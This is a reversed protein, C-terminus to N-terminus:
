PGQEENEAALVSWNLLVGATMLIYRVFVFVFLVGLDFRGVDVFCALGSKHFLKWDHLTWSSDLYNSKLRMINYQVIESLTVVIQLNKTMGLLFKDLMFQMAVETNNAM